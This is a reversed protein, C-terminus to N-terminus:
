GLSQFITTPIFLLGLLALVVTVGSFVVARSATGGATVIADHVDAGALREERYREIIFLAYDIGVALGIMTIMNSVFVSLELVRALLSTLGLAVVIASAALMLPVGAAAISRFALVLIVLAVPVAFLEGRILDSEALHNYEESISVYGVPLVVIEDGGLREITALYPEAYEKANEDDGVFTVPVLTSHRDASVLAAAEPLGLAQAQYVNTASAVVGDLAVLAATAEELKAQFAADDATLTSSTVVVTETLPEPAGRLREELLADARVSEPSSTFSWNTALLDNVGAALAGCIALVVLWVGIVRWPRRASLDALREPSLLRLM